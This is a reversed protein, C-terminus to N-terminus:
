SYLGQEIQKQTLTGLSIHITNHQDGDKTIAYYSGDNRAVFLKILEGAIKKDSIIAKIAQLDGNSVQNPEYEIANVPAIYGM